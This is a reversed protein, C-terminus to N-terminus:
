GAAVPAPEPQRLGDRSPARAMEPRMFREAAIRGWNMGEARMTLVGRLMAATGDRATVEGGTLAARLADCSPRWVGHGQLADRALMLAMKVDHWTMGAHPTVETVVPKAPPATGISHILRATVGDHLAHVLVFANDRSGALRAFRVAIEISVTDQDQPASAPPAPSIPLRCAPMRMARKMMM